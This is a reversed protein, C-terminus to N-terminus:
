WWMSTICLVISLMEIKPVYKRHGANGFIRSFDYFMVDIYLPVKLSNDDLKFKLNIRNAFQIQAVKILPQNSIKGVSMTGYFFEYRVGLVMNMCTFELAQNTEANSNSRSWRGGMTAIIDNRDPPKITNVELWHEYDNKPNGM